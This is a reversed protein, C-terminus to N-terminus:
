IATLPEERAETGIDEAPLCASPLTLSLISCTRFPPKGGSAQGLQLGPPRSRSPWRPCAVGEPSTRSSHKHKVRTEKSKLNNRLSVPACLSDSFLTTQIPIIGVRAPRSLHKKTWCTPLSNQQSGFRKPIRPSTKPSSSKFEYRVLGSTHNMLQRVTIDKGNPLRSFWLERGLYKEIKDDLGIKGEKILQLATAAAFTKGVSGALMRSDPKMPTRAERDSFGVSLGFSEGNQLVVGLTAGPFNGAKHWEDLKQQLASKLPTTKLVTATQSRVAGTSLVCVLLFLAIKRM